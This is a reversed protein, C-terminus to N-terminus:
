QNEIQIIKENSFHPILDEGTIINSDTEKLARIDLVSM